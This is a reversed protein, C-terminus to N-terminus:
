TSSCFPIPSSSVKALRSHQLSGIGTCFATGTSMKPTRAHTKFSRQGVKANIGAFNMDVSALAYALNSIKSLTQTADMGIPTGVAMDSPFRAGDATIWWESVCTANANHNYDGDQVTM